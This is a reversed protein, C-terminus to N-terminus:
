IHHIFNYIGSLFLHMWGNVALLVPTSAPEFVEVMARCPMPPSSFPVWHRPTYSPWGTGPSYLYPSRTRWTPPTMFRLCYLTTMFGASNPGSLLQVPSPWCCITFSLGMRKEPLAGWMLLGAVTQCYCFYPRPGWIPAQCWPLSAAQGNIM